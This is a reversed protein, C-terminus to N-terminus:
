KNKQCIFVDFINKTPVNTSFKLDFSTKIDIEVENQVIFGQYSSIEKWFDDIDVGFNLLARKNFEMIIIFWDLKEGLKFLEPLVMGEAGEIDIKVIMSKSNKLNLNELISEITVLDVEQKIATKNIYPSISYNKANKQELSGGGSYDRQFYFEVKGFERGIAAPIINVNKIEGFSKRLCKLIFPNPEISIIPKKSSLALQTFEGYNAGIDFILDANLKLAEKWIEKTREQGTNKSSIKFARWDHKDLFLENESNSLKFYQPSFRNVKSVFYRFDRLYPWIVRATKELPTNEILNKFFSKM